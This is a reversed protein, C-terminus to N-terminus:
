NMIRSMPMAQRTTGYRTSMSPACCGASSLRYGSGAGPAMAFYSGDGIAYPYHIMGVGVLLKGYPQFRGRTFFYAKQGALYSSETSNEFGGFRLFRADGELGFRRNLKYDAFVGVGFLRQSSQYPFSARVDSYEAGVSLPNRARFAAPASQAELPVHLLAASFMILIALCCSKRLLDM